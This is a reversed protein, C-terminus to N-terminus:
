DPTIATATSLFRLEQIKPQFMCSMETMYQTLEEEAKIKIKERIRSTGQRRRNAM